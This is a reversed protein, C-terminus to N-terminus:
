GGGGTGRRQAYAKMQAVARLGAISDARPTRASVLPVPAPVPAPTVTQPPPGACAAVATLLGASILLELGMIM